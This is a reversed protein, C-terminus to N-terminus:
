CKHTQSSQNKKQNPLLFVDLVDLFAIHKKKPTGPEKKRNMGAMRWSLVGAAAAMFSGPKVDQFFAIDANNSIALHTHTNRQTSTIRM